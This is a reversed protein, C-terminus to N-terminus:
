GELCDTRGRSLREAWALAHARNAAQQQPDPSDLPHPMTGAITANTVCFMAKQFSRCIKVHV